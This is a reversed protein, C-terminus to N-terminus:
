PARQMSVAGGGLVAAVGLFYGLDYWSGANPFAYIRVESFQSAILDFAAILGQVLGLWFDPAGTPPRPSSRVHGSSQRACARCSLVIRQRCCQGGLGSDNSLKATKPSICQTQGSEAPSASLGGGDIM